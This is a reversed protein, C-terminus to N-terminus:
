DKKKGVLEDIDKTYTKLVKDSISAMEAKDYIALLFIYERKVIVYTIIRLGGSKGRGKSKVALRIKYINSGLSTGSTPNEMLETQLLTLEDRLSSYKKALRKAQRQFDDTVEIKYSM